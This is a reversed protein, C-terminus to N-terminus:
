TINKRSPLHRIPCSSNNGVKNGRNRIQTHIHNSPKSPTKRNTISSQNTKISKMEQKRHQNSKKRKNMQKIKMLSTRPVRQPQNRRSISNLKMRIKRHLIKYTKTKQSKKKTKNNKKERVKQNIRLIKNWSIRQNSRCM